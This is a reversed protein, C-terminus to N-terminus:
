LHIAQKPCTVECQGCKMCKSDEFFGSEKGSSPDLGVPCVRQCAKCKVCTSDIKMKSAKMVDSTLSALTGMPCFSCWMRQHYTIGLIVGILSTGILMRILFTGIAGWNGWHITVQFAFIGMMITIIAIRFGKTRVIGPVPTQPSYKSLILDFFSGRPCFNGCWFRGKSLAVMVPAVMCILVAFGLWPYFLGLVMFLFYFGVVYARLVQTM